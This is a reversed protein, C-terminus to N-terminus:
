SDMSSWTSEILQTLGSESVISM